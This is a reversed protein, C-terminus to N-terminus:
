FEIDAWNGGGLYKNDLSPRLIYIYIYIYLYLLTHSKSSGKLETKCSVIVIM